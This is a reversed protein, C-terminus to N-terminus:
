HEYNNIENIIENCKKIESNIMAANKDDQCAQGSELYYRFRELYGKLILSYDSDLSPDLIRNEINRVSDELDKSLLCTKEEEQFFHYIGYGVAIAAFLLFLYIWWNNKKPHTPILIDDEHSSLENVPHWIERPCNTLFNLFAKRIKNTERYITQNDETGDLQDSKLDNFRSAINTFEQDAQKIVRTQAYHQNVFNIHDKFANLGAEVGRDRLTDRIQELTKLGM